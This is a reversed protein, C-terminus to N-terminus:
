RHKSENKKGLIEGLSDIKKALNDCVFSKVYDDAPNALIEQPTGIQRIEATSMVMIRDSLSFAEEQDHTIYIITTNFEKQVRKIEACLELRTSADLASMPEDFLILDPKMALTRAIAVRQQQGGSLNAPKKDALETLNLKDMLETAIQEAQSKMSKNLKLAFEINQRVTMNEFLAYNQFVIGMGRKSIKWNTIDQGDKIIQGSTPAVLGILIKIITSKGCGSSGLISLFEGDYVDFSVNEVANRIDNDYKKTLSKVSLKIERSNEKSM